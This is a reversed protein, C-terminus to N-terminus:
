HTLPYHQQNLPVAVVSIYLLQCVRDRCSARGTAPRFSDFDTIPRAGDRNGYIGANTLLLDIARGAYKAALADVAADDTVELAELPINGKLAALATAAKPDRCCAIVAWGDALYRKTLEFGIGRNAGTILLTPM